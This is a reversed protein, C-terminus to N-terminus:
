SSITAESSSIWLRTASRVASVSAASLTTSSLQHCSAFDRMIAGLSCVNSARAELFAEPLFHAIPGLKPGAESRGPASGLRGDGRGPRCDPVNWGESVPAVGRWWADAARDRSVTILSWIRAGFRRRHSQPCGFRRPRTSRPCERGHGDPSRRANTGMGSGPTGPRAFQTQLSRPCDSSRAPASVPPDSGGSPGQHLCGASM